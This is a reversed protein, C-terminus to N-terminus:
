LGGPKGPREAPAARPAAPMAFMTLLPMMPGKLSGSAMANRTEDATLKISELADLLPKAAPFQQVEQRMKVM